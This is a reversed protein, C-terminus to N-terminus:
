LYSGEERLNLTCDKNDLKCKFWWQLCSTYKWHGLSGTLRQSVRKPEHTKSGKINTRYLTVRSTMLMQEWQLSYPFDQRNKERHVHEMIHFVKSFRRVIFGKEVIILCALCMTWILQIHITWYALWEKLNPAGLALGCHKHLQKTLFWCPAPESRFQTM